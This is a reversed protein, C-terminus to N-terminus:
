QQEEEEAGPIAIADIEVLANKPLTKVAFTARAPYRGKTFYSGYAENVAAFDDMDALLITCKVVHDFTADAKALVAQMNKMAAHTQGVVDPAVFAGQADVGICGSVYLTGNALVGNSYPGLAAGGMVRRITSKSMNEVVELTKGM